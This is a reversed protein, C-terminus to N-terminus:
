LLMVEQYQPSYLIQQNKGVFSIFIKHRGGIMDGPTGVKKVTRGEFLFKVEIQYQQYIPNKKNDLRKIEARVLVADRIWEGVEKYIKKHRILLSIHIVASSILLINGLILAIVMDNNMILTGQYCLAIIIVTIIPMLLSVIIGIYLIYFRWGAVFRGYKLTAKIKKISMSDGVLSLSQYVVNSSRCSDM